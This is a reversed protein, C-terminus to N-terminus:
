PNKNKTQISFKSFYQKKKQQKSIKMRHSILNKQKRSFFEFIYKPKKKISAFNLFM